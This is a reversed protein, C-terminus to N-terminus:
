NTLNNPRIESSSLMTLLTPMFCSEKIVKTSSVFSRTVMPFSSGRSFFLGSMVNGFNEGQKALKSM